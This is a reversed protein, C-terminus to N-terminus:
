QPTEEGERQAEAQEMQMLQMVYQLVMDMKNQMEAQQAELAAVREKSEAEIEAREIEGAQKIKEQTIRGEIEAAKEQQKMQMQQQLQENEAQLEQVIQAGEQLQAQLQQVMAQVEPPIQQGEEEDAQLAQPPVMAKLRKGMDDAGPWDQARMWLDGILPFVQPNGQMVETM